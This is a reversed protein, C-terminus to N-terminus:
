SCFLPHHSPTYIQRTKREDMVAAREPVSRVTTLSCVSPLRGALPNSRLCLSGRTSPILLVFYNLLLISNSSEFVSFLSHDMQCM